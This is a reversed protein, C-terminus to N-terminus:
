HLFQQTNSSAVPLQSDRLGPLKGSFSAGIIRNGTNRNTGNYTRSIVYQLEYIRIFAILQEIIRDRTVTCFFLINLGQNVKVEIICSGKLHTCLLMIRLLMRLRCNQLM